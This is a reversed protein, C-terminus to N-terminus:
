AKKEKKKTVGMHVYVGKEKDSDILLLEKKEGELGGEKEVGGINEKTGGVALCLVGVGGGGGQQKGGGEKGKGKGRGKRCWCFV